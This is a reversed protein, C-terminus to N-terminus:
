WLKATEQSKSNGGLLENCQRAMVSEGGLLERM